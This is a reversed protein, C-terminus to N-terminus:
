KSPEPLVYQKQQHIRTAEKHIAFVSLAIGLLVAAALFWPWLYTQKASAVDTENRMVRFTNPLAGSVV